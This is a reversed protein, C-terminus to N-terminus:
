DEQEHVDGAGVVRMWLDIYMPGDSTSTVWHELRFTFLKNTKDNQALVFGSDSASSWMYEPLLVYDGLEASRWDALLVVAARAARAKYMDASVYHNTLRVVRERDDSSLMEFLKKSLDADVMGRMHQMFSSNSQPIKFKAHFENWYNSIEIIGTSRVPPETFEQQPLM